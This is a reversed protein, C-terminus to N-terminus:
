EREPFDVRLPSLGTIVGISTSKVQGWGLSPKVGPKVRVRAGVVIVPPGTTAQAGTTEIANEHYWWEKGNDARVKFPKSSHDDCILVGTDRYCHLDFNPIELM